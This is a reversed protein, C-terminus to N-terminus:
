AYVIFLHIFLFFSCSCIAAAATAFFIISVAFFLLSSAVTCVFVLRHSQKIPNSKWKFVIDAISNRAQKINCM